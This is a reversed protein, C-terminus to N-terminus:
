ASLAESPRRLDVAVVLRVGADLWAEAARMGGRRLRRVEAEVEARVGERDAAVRVVRALRVARRDRCVRSRDADWSGDVLGAV